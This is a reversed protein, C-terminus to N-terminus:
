ENFKRKQRRNRGVFGRGRGKWCRNLGRVVGEATGDSASFLPAVLIKNAMERDIALSSNRVRILLPHGPAAQLLTIIVGPTLGLEALRRARRRAGQLTILRAQHGPTLDSLRLGHRTGPKQDTM